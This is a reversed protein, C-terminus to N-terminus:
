TYTTLSSVVPRTDSGLFGPTAQLPEPLPPSSSPLLTLTGGRKDFGFVLKHNPDSGELFFFSFFIVSRKKRRSPLPLSPATAGGEGGEGGGEGLGRVLKPDPHTHPLPPSPHLTLCTDRTSRVSNHCLTQSQSSELGAHSTMTRILFSVVLQM